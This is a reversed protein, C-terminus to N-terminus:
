LRQLPVTGFQVFFSLQRCDTTAPVCCNSQQVTVIASDVFSFTSYETRSPIDDAITCDQCFSSSNYPCHVTYQRCAHHITAEEIQTEKNMQKVKIEKMTTM